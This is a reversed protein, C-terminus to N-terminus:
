KKNKKEPPVEDTEQESTGQKEPAVSTRTSVPAEEKAGGGREEAQRKRTNRENRKRERALKLEQRAQETWGKDDITDVSAMAPATSTADPTDPIKAEDLTLFFRIQAATIYHVDTEGMGNGCDLIFMSKRIGSKLQSVAHLVKAPHQVGTLPLRRLCKLVPPDGSHTNSRYFMLDGGEYEAPDNLAVQMTYTAYGGDVHPPICGATPGTTVRFAIKGIRAECPNMMNDYYQMLLRYIIRSEAITGTGHLLLVFEQEDIVLKLDRTRYYVARKVFDLFNNIRLLRHNEALQALGPSSAPFYLPHLTPNACLSRARTYFDKMIPKMADTQMLAEREERGLLLFQVAPSNDDAQHFKSIMGRLRLVLHVTSGAEIAYDSLTRGDELQRGDFIIRQQDPPTGDEDEIKDKVDDIYDSPEVDLQITKGTLTQVFLKM